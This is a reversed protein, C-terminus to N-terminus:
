YHITRCLGDNSGPRLSCTKISMQDKRNELDPICSHPDPRVVCSHFSHKRLRAWEMTVCPIYLVVMVPSVVPLGCSAGPVLMNM